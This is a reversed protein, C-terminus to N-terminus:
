APHDIQHLLALFLVTGLLRRLRVGVQVVDVGVALLLVVELFNCGGPLFNSIPFNLRSLHLGPLQLPFLLLLLLLLNLTNIPLYFFQSLTYLDEFALIHWFLAVFHLSSVQLEELGMNFALGLGGTDSIDIKILVKTVLCLPLRGLLYPHRPSLSHDIVFILLHSSLHSCLHCSIKLLMNRIHLMGHSVAQDVEGIAGQNVWSIM